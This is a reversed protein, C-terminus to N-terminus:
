PRSGRPEQNNGLRRTGQFLGEAAVAALLMVLPDIPYRYRLLAQSFYFAFPFLIPLATVPVAYARLRRSGYLRVTGGLALTAALFNAALVIRILLSSEHRFDRWPNQTGAWTAIFRQKFSRAVQTPHSWIWGIAEQQKERMYAVEGMRVYKARETVSDIPHLWGPFGDRYQDNNGLWLQLGLASRFPIFSHFVVANRITWPLCCLVMVGAALSIEQLCRADFQKRKRYITWGLLLPLGALLTANTMLAAGWLAGYACWDWSRRSDAVELTAWVLTAALLGSLSTDWIWQFPIIVANPFLAWLWAAGAAVGMGGVRKGLYFIPVCTATSFAINLLVAALFAHFTFTGFIEFIGAVLLPYVPTTWATPGTEMRFPSSFGKGIALSYAIDGPEYLFPVAELAQRPITSLEYSLYALRLGLAASLILLLSILPFHPQVKVSPIYM